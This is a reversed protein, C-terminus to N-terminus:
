QASGKTEFSLLIEPVDALQRAIADPDAPYPPQVDNEDIVETMWIHHMGVNEAGLIDAELLDGVMVVEEAPLGWKQLVARFIDPHPKRLGFGASILIPNLYKRIDAKDILRQVDAEDSANSILGLKLGRDQLAELVPHTAPLTQWHNQSVRYMGELARKITSEDPKKGTLNTLTEMLVVETTHEVLDQDRQQHYESLAAQFNQKFQARDFSIGQHNLGEVLVDLSHAFVQPWDGTFRILTSGLDFIVGQIV